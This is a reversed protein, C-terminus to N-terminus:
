SNFCALFSQYFGFYVSLFMYEFMSCLNFHRLARFLATLEREATSM